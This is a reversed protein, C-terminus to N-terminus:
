CVEKIQQGMTSANRSKGKKKIYTIDHYTSELSISDIIRVLFLRRQLYYVIQLSGVVMRFWILFMNFWSM